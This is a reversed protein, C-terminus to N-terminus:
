AYKLRPLRGDHNDKTGKSPKVMKNPTPLGSFLVKSNSPIAFPNEKSPKGCQSCPMETPLAEYVPNTPAHNFHAEIFGCAECVYNHSPM